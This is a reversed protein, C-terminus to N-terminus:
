IAKEVLYLVQCGEETIFWPSLPDYDGKLINFLLQLEDMTIKLFQDLGFLGLLKQFDNLTKIKDKRLQTKQPLITKPYLQHGLYKYLPEHHIKEPAVTLGKEKLAQLLQVYAHLLSGQNEALFIADM